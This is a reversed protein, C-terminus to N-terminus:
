SDKGIIEEITSDENFGVEIYGEYDEEKKMRALIIQMTSPMSSGKHYIIPKKLEGSIYELFDM